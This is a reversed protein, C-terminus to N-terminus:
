ARGNKSEQQAVQPPRLREIIRDIAGEAYRIRLKRGIILPRVEIWHETVCWYHGGKEDPSNELVVRLDARRKCEKEECARRKDDNPFVTVPGEPSKDGSFIDSGV